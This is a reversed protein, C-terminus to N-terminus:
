VYILNAFYFTILLCHNLNHYEIMKKSFHNPFVTISNSMLIYKLIHNKKIYNEFILLISDEKRKVILLM